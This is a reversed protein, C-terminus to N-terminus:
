KYTVYNRPNMAKSNERVEFHLHPGTSWGTSGVKGVTEGKAVIQGLSVNIDSLHAYLTSYGGGHDIIIYKGYGKGAVYTTNVLVVKGSNSAVVPKGYVNAGSIDFGTHYDTGGWRPGFESTVTSYGPVPWIFNGGVFDGYSELERYFKDLDSQLQKMAAQLDKQNAQFNKEEDSIDQIKSSITGVQTQLLATKEDLVTRDAVIKERSEQIELVNNEVTKKSYEVVEKDHLLQEIATKDHDAIRKMREIKTLFDAFSNSGLLLSLTNSDDSMYMIRLRTKLKNINFEIGAEKLAIDVKLVEVEKELAIIEAELSVISDNLLKIQDKTLSIQNELQNKQAQQKQKEDKIKNLQNQIEKQQAELQEYQTNLSNIKNKAAAVAAAAAASNDTKETAAEEKDVVTAEAVFAFPPSVAVFLLTLCLVFAVM